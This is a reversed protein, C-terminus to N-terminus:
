EEVEEAPKAGYIAWAIAHRVYDSKTMGARSATEVLDRYLGESMGILIQRKQVEGRM